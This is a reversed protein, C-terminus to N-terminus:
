TPTSWTGHAYTVEYETASVSIVRLHSGITSSGLSGAAASVNSLNRITVSAPAKVTLTQAARVHFEFVYSVNSSAPDSPTPLTFIVAGSAGSNTLVRGSETNALVLDSTHNSLRVGAAVAGSVGSNSRFSVVNSQLSEFYARGQFSVYQDGQCRLADVELSVYDNDAANRASILAASSRKFMVDDLVVEGGSVGGGGSSAGGSM